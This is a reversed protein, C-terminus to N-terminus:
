KICNLLSHVATAERMYPCFAAYEQFLYSSCMVMMSPITAPILEPIDTYIRAIYEPFICFSIIMVSVTGYSLKMIRRVLSMVKDQHGEGIINSVLTSCTSSFAQLVVWMLGSVSRAINSIALAREGLHEIYIFFIFWIFLSM